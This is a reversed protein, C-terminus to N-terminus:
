RSDGTLQAARRTFMDSAVYTVLVELISDRKEAQLREWQAIFYDESHRDLAAGAYRGVHRAFCRKM